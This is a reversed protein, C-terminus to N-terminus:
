NCRIYLRKYYAEVSELERDLCARVFFPQEINRIENWIWTCLNKKSTPIRHIMSFVSYILLGVPSFCLLKKSGFMELAAKQTIGYQIYQFMSHRMCCQIHQNYICTSHNFANRLPYDVMYHQKRYQKMLSSCFTIEQNKRNRMITKM